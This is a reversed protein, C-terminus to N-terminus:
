YILNPVSDYLQSAYMVEKALRGWDQCGTWHSKPAVNNRDPIVSLLASIKVKFERQVRLNASAITRLAHSKRPHGNNLFFSHSRSVGSARDKEHGHRYRNPVM